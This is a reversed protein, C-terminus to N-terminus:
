RRWIEDITANLITNQPKRGGILSAVCPWRVLNNNCPQRLVTYILKRWLRKLFSHIWRFHLYQANFIMVFIDTPILQINFLSWAAGWHVTERNTTFLNEFTKRHLKRFSCQKFAHFRIGSDFQVMTLVNYISVSNVTVYICFYRFLPTTIYIVLNWSLRANATM